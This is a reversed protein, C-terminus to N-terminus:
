ATPSGSTPGKTRPFSIRAVGGGRLPVFKNEYSFHLCRFLDARTEKNSIALSKKKKKKKKKRKKEKKKMKHYKAISSAISEIM